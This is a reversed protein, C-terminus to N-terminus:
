PQFVLTLPQCWPGRYFAFGLRHCMERNAQWLARNLADSARKGATRDSVMQHKAQQILDDYLREWSKFESDDPVRRPQTRDATRALAYVELGNCVLALNDGDALTSCFDLASFGLYPLGTESDPLHIHAFGVYSDHDEPKCKPDVGLEDGRKWGRVLHVLHLRDERLVICGGWEVQRAQPVQLSRHRLEALGEKLDWVDIAYPLQSSALLGQVLDRMTDDM